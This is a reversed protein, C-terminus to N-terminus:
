PGPRPPGPPPVVGPPPKRHLKSFRHLHITVTNSSKITKGKANRIEAQLKHTGRDVYNLTHSLSKSKNIKTRGDILISISHGNKTDLPPDISLSISVNGSNDRITENEGPSTIKFDTYKTATEEKEEAEKKKPTYKVAPTTMLPPPKIEKANKHPPSDSYHVEGNEDVWKYLKAHVGFAILLSFIFLFIRM